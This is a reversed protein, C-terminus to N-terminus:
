KSPGPNRDIRMAVSSFRKRALSSRRSRGCTAPGRVAGDGVADCGAAPPSGTSPAGPQRTVRRLGDGASSAATAAPGRPRGGGVMASAGGTIGPGDAATARDGLRM